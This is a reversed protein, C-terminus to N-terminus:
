FSEWDENGSSPTAAALRATHGPAIASRTTRGGNTTQARNVALSARLSGTEQPTAPQVVRLDNTAVEIIEGSHTKFVDMAGALTIAQKELSGAAAAAQEVLAANKQTMQDMQAVARNVQDIGVSQEQSAASIEGMIDTVRSVSAVLENMTAGALEVQRSGGDVASVSELILTKIEKAAQASRQALNRVEGAVVAFGKGQDGARAAEVAANLALINTQFAIGDIVSVIEAIRHSSTSIDHMVSVVESVVAAGREAVMAASSALQNAQKANDANQKVTVSLQEMSAATQELSAAQQETRGSLDMNGAAIERVGTNIEDVGRRVSSVTRTLGEQMKRIATFLHGIENEKKNEIRGTFDGESLRDFHAGAEVLPRLVIRNVFIWGALALILGVALTAITVIRASAHEHSAVEVLDRTRQDIIELVEANHASFVQGRKRSTEDLALYRDTDKGELAHIQLAVADLYAKYAKELQAVQPAPASEHQRANRLFANFNKDLADLARQSAEIGAVVQSEKGALLDNFATALNVRARLLQLYASNLEGSQGTYADKVEVLNQNSTDLSKWAVANSVIMVGALLCLLLAMFARVSLKKFM